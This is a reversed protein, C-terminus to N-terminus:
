NEDNKEIGLINGNYFDKYITPTLIKFNIGYEQLNKLSKYVLQDAEASREWSKNDTYGEGYCHQSKKGSRINEYDYFTHGDMGVISTDEVGMLHAIMISLNGATRFFGLIKRNKYGIPVGEKMDTFNILTYKMDGIVERVTKLHIGSGLLLESEPYINEGFTRFRQTNTWLHYNPICFETINNIGIIIPKEELIFSNIKNEYDKISSGAAVILARRGKHKNILSEITKM